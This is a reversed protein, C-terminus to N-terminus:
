QAAIQATSKDKDDTEDKDDNDICEIKDKDVCKTKDNDLYKKSQHGWQRCFRPVNNAQLGAHLLIFNKRLTFKHLATASMRSALIHRTGSM